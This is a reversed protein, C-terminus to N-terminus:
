TAARPGPSRALKRWTVVHGFLASPVLVGPLWIYPPEAIWTNVRDAGFAAFMPLSAVAIAIINALLLTGLVNWALIARRSERGLAAMIAVPIALTGSLIDFNWGSFSMQVPVLGDRAAREMLLELPLRFAQFGVLIGVPALNAVRAGVPSFATAIAILVAGGIVPLIPPPVRDWRSLLGQGALIIEIAMIVALALSSRAAAVGGHELLLVVCAAVLVALLAIGVAVLM